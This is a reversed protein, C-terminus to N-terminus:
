DGKWYDVLAATRSLYLPHKPEGQNTKGFCKVPKGEFLKRVAESRNRVKGWNGWAFVVLDAAHALTKLYKDNDPGVPDPHTMLVAPDKSRIAFLEGVLCEHFGWRRAYGMCRRITPDNKTEDATSPNLLVFLVGGEGDLFFRSLTYRYIRDSSFITKM